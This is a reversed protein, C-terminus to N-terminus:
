AMCRTYEESLGYFRADGGGHVTCTVVLYIVGDGPSAAPADAILEATPTVAKVQRGTNWSVAASVAAGATFLQATVTNNDGAAIDPDIDVNVQDLTYSKPLAIPMMCYDAAAQLSIEVSPTPPANVIRIATAMLIAADIPVAEVREEWQCQAKDSASLGAISYLPYAVEGLMAGGVNIEYGYLPLYGNSAKRIMADAPSAAGADKATTIECYYGKTADDYVFTEAKFYVCYYGAGGAPVYVYNTWDTATKDTCPAGQTFICEHNDITNKSLVVTVTGGAETIGAIANFATYGARDTNLVIGHTRGFGHAHGIAFDGIGFITDLLQRDRRERNGLSPLLNAIGDHDLSPAPVDVPYLDQALQWLDLANVGAPTIVNQGTYDFTNTACDFTGLYFYSANASIDVTTITAGKVLAFYDAAVVSPTAQGFHHPVMAMLSGSVVDYAVVGEWIAEAGDTVPDIKWIVVTRQGADTWVSKCLTNLVVKLGAGNLIVNNPVGIEGISERYKTFAYVSAGSKGQRVGWDDGPLNSPHRNHRLGLYYLAAGNHHFAMTSCGEMSGAVTNALSGDINYHREGVALSITDPPGAAYACTQQTTFVGNAGFMRRIANACGDLFYGVM